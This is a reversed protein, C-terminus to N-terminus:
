LVLLLTPTFPAIQNGSEPYFHKRDSWPLQRQNFFIIKMQNNQSNYKTFKYPNLM